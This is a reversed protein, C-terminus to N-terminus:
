KSYKKRTEPYESCRSLYGKCKTYPIGKAGMCRQNANDYHKCVAATRDIIINFEEKLFDEFIYIFEDNDNKFYQKIFEYCKEAAEQRGNNFMNRTGQIAIKDEM